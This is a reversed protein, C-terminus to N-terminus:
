SYDTMDATNEGAFIICTINYYCRPLFRLPSKYSNNYKM